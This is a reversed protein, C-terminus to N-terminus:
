MLLFVLVCSSVLVGENLGGMAFPFVVSYIVGFYESQFIISFPDYHHLSLGVWLMRNRSLSSVLNKNM